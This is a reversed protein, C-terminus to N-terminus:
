YALPCATDHAFRQITLHYCGPRGDEPKAMITYGGEDEIDVHFRRTSVQEWGGGFENDELIPEPIGDGEWWVFGFEDGPEWQELYFGIKNAELWWWENVVSDAPIANDFYGRCAMLALLLM